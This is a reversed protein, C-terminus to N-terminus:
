PLILIIGLGALGTLVITAVALQNLTNIPLLVYDQREIAYTALRRQVLAFVLLMLGLGVFGLGILTTTKQHIAPDAQPFQRRLSRAIQDFAVGFGILNLCIGTWANITREAAARNREKALENTPNVFRQPIGNGM